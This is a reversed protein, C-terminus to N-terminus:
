DAIKYMSKQKQIVREKLLQDLALVVRAKEFETSLIISKESQAGKAVLTKIIAGRVERVSGKFTSQKKYTKSNRHTTNGIGKLYSGYDMLAWYWARPNKNDLTRAIIPILAADSVTDTARSFFHHLYVTRINTEIFVHPQNYAFTAVASATYIGVGPLLQLLHKEKPFEGDYQDVITKAMELLFRARRNYGLGVWLALVESLTARALSSVTPFAAIFAAFKERVRVVQTQQLMVESVMIYYPDTNKRWALDHRGQSKYFAKVTNVFQKEKLNM